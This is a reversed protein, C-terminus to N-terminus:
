KKDDLWRLSLKSMDEETHDPDILFRIPSRTDEEKTMQSVIVYNAQAMQKFIPSSLGRGNDEYRYQPVMRRRTFFKRELNECLKLSIGMLGLEQLCKTKINPSVTAYMKVINYAELMVDYQRREIEEEVEKEGLYIEDVGPEMFLWEDQFIQRSRAEESKHKVHRDNPAMLLAVTSPVYCNYHNRRINDSVDRIKQMTEELKEVVLNLEKPILWGDNPLLLAHLEKYYLEIADSDEDRITHTEFM